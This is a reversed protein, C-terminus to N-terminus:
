YILTVIKELWHADVADFSDLSRSDADLVGM